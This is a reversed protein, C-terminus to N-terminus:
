DLLLPPTVAGGFLVLGLLLFLTALLVNVREAHYRDFQARAANAADPDDAVRDLFEARHRDARPNVVRWGYVALGAAAVLLGTRVVLLPRQSPSAYLLAWQGAVALGLVAACALEARALLALLGGVVDGALLSPHDDDDLDATKGGRLRPSAAAIVRFVVPTAAAVSLVGGFWTSLALWYAVQVIQFMPGSYPGAASAM